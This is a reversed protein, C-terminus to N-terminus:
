QGYPSSGYGYSRSQTQSSKSKLERKGLLLRVFTSVGFLSLLGMGLTTLFEKRTMQQQTIDEIEIPLQM